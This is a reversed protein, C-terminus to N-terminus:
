QQRFNPLCTCMSFWSARVSPGSSSCLSKIVTCGPVPSGPRAGSWTWPWFLPCRAGRSGRTCDLRGLSRRFLPFWDAGASFGVQLLTRTRARMPCPPSHYMSLAAVPRCGDKGHRCLALSLRRRALSLRLACDPAAPAPLYPAARTALQRLPPPLPTFVPARRVEEPDCTARVRARPFGAAALRGGVEARGGGGAGLAEELRAGM